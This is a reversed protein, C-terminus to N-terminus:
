LFIWIYSRLNPCNKKKKKFKQCIGLCTVEIYQFHQSTNTNIYIWIWDIFEFHLEHTQSACIKYGASTKHIHQTLPLSQECRSCAM